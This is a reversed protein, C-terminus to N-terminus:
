NVLGFVGIDGFLVRVSVVLIIDPWIDPHGTAQDLQCMLNVMVM